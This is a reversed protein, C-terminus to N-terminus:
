KQGTCIALLYYATPHLGSQVVEGSMSVLLVRAFYKALLGHLEKGSRCNIRGLPGARQASGSSTGIILMGGKELSSLLNAIYIDEDDPAVQEVMNLSVIVEHRRPLPARTIDHVLAKLSWRKSNQSLADEIFHPNPDYASVDPVQQAIIRTGFADGCGVEGVNKAGSITTAVFKYRALVVALRAPDEQWIRNAVLGLSARGLTRQVELEPVYGTDPTALMEAASRSQSIDGGDPADDAVVFTAVFSSAIGRPPGGGGPARRSVIINSFTSLGLMALNFFVIPFGILPNERLLQRLTNLKVFANWRLRGAPVFFSKELELGARVLRESHSFAVTGFSTPGTSRWNRVFLVIRGKPKM